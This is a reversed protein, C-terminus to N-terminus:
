LPEKNRQAEARIIVYIPVHDVYSYGEEQPLRSYSVLWIWCSNEQKGDKRIFDSNQSCLSYWTGTMNSLKSKLSDTV